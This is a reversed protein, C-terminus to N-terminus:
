RELAVIEDFFGKFGEDEIAPILVEMMEMLHPNKNHAEKAAQDRYKEFFMIRQPDDKQQYVFYEITGEEDKMTPVFKKIAACANELQDAKARFSGFFTIM